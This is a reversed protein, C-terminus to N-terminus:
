SECSSMKLSAPKSFLLGRRMSYNFLFVVGATPAKSLEPALDLQEVFVHMLGENLALCFFGIAAFVALEWGSREYPRSHFVFRISLAYALLMGASFGIAAAVLYDLGAFKCLAVFLGYDLALAALSALGYKMFEAATRLGDNSTPSLLRFASVSKM